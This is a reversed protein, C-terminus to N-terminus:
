KEISYYFMHLGGQVCSISDGNCVNCYPCYEVGIIYHQKGGGCGSEGSLEMAQLGEVCSLLQSYAVVFSLM